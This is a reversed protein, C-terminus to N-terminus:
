GFVMRIFISILLRPRIEFYVTVLYLKKFSLSRACNLYPMPSYHVSLDNLVNMCCQHILHYSQWRLFNYIYYLHLFVHVIVLLLIRCCYLIRCVVFPIYQLHSISSPSIPKIGPFAELFFYWKLKTCCIM